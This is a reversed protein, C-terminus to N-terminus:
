AIRTEQLKMQLENYLNEMRKLLLLTDVEGGESFPLPEALRANMLAARAAMATELASGLARSVQALTGMSAFYFKEAEPLIDVSLKIKEMLTLSEVPLHAAIKRLTDVTINDGREARVIQNRPIGIRDALRAQTWGAEERAKRLEEHLLM